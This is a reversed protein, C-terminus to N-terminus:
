QFGAVVREMNGIFKNWGYTAGKYAADQDSGFGSQEMRLLTGGSTPVLTWVVVSELGMTGWSYSLKKNPEVVLVESDIVGNWNPVPTSRFSFGHGVVPQFDNDMLWEKILPGETLARWIKEPPYPMEREIVLTRTTTTM